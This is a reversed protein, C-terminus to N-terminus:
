RFRIRASWSSAVPVAEVLNGQCGDIVNLGADIRQTSDIQMVCYYDVTLAHTRLVLSLTKHAAQIQQLSHPLLHVICRVQDSHRQLLADPPVRHGIHLQEKGLHAYVPVALAANSNM